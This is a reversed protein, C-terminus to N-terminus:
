VHQHAIDWVGPRPAAACLERFRRFPRRRVPRGTPLEAVFRAAAPLPPYALLARPLARRVPAGALRAAIDRPPDTFARVTLASYTRRRATSRSRCRTASRLAATRPTKLLSRNDM